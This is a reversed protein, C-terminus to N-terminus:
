PAVAEVYLSEVARVPSDVVLQPDRGEQFARRQVDIFGADLLLQRMLPFDFMTCHGAPSERDQYFVRNVSTLPTWGPLNEEADQFPFRHSGDGTIQSLYSRLYTEADPVVIRVTSGAALVRRFERLLACAQPQMFHELCHESFVGRLSADAFPLGRNVDWCVDVGPKWFYDLHIFGPHLCDGCGVDLYPRALVERTLQLHRNRRLAAILRQVKAYSDIRRM